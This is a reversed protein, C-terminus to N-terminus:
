RLLKPVRVYVNSFEDEKHGYKSNFYRFGLIDSGGKPGVSHDFM